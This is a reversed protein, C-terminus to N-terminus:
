GGADRGCLEGVTPRDESPNTMEALLVAAVAEDGHALSRAVLRLVHSFAPDPTHSLGLPAPPGLPVEGAENLIQRYRHCSSVPRGVLKSLEHLTLEPNDRVLGIEWDSWPRTKVIGLRSRANEVAKFSRDLKEALVHLDTNPNDRLVQFETETWPRIKVVGLRTRAM